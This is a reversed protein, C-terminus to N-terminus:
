RLVTVAGHKSLLTGELLYYYVGQPVNKGKFKGDWYKNIDDTEYILQGWRNFIKLLYIDCDTSGSIEFLENSGDDNPSFVNPIFLLSTDSYNQNVIQELTDACLTGANVILTVTYSGNVLYAHAPNQLTDNKGDGFDWLFGFANQSQSIFQIEAECPQQESYFLAVGQSFTDIVTQIFTDAGCQNFSILTVTYIGTSSYTYVPNFVTDTTGDGFDWLVSDTNQSQNSLTVTLDCPQTSFTFNAIPQMAGTLDIQQQLTDFYCGNNVALTITYIGPLSYTHVPNVQQSTNGDGFDWVYISLPTSQNTLSITLSCPQSSIAFAATVPLPVYVTFQQQVTASSCANSAILTVTYTGNAPYTHSPNTATNVPSGDGFNWSYSVANVSQNTFNVTYSCQQMTFNFVATAVAINPITVPILISDVCGPGNSVTLMVNYSGALLYTHVPNQVPSTPTGDGFDWSFNTANVSTNTFTVTSTCTDVTFSFSASAPNGLVNIIIWATDYSCHDDAIKYLISDILNACSQPATYIIQNGNVIITGYQPQIIISDLVIPDGQIDSDNQLPLITVSGGGAITFTDPNAVPPPVTILFEPFRRVEGNFNGPNTITSYGCANGVATLNANTMQSLPNAAYYTNIFYSIGNPGTKVDHAYCCTNMNTWVSNNLDYQWLSTGPSVGTYIKSGDPSFNGVRAATIPAQALQIENSLVGSSPNFDFLSVKLNDEGMNVLKSTNENFEMAWSRGSNSFNYIVPGIFGASTIEYVHYTATNYLHGILWYNNSNTKPIVRMAQHYNAGGILQNKVTVEGLLNSTFDVISYYFSGPTNDWSSNSIVYYQSCQNPVRCVQVCQSGSLHAFLGSGNTMVAHNKNIVTIGDSYFLLQGSYSDSVVVMGEFGVGPYKNSVKVPNNNVDFIVGDTGDGFYWNKNENQAWAGGGVFLVLFLKLLSKM